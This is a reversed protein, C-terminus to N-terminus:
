VGAREITVSKVVVPEVPTESQGSLDGFQSITTVVQFGSTVRGVLAYDPPLGADAATVVFFQSGSRGPPESPSKGMAVVGRTYATDPPPPEDITYGADGFGSASPDGGQIVPPALAIRHIATNDYVGGRALHIFSATTKPAEGTALAIEFSGCTTEVLATLKGAPPRPPPRDLDVEKAPPASAEECPGEVTPEGSDGGGCAALALVLGLCLLTGTRRM